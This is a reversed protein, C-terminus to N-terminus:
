VTSCKQSVLKETHKLFSLWVALVESNVYLTLIQDFQNLFDKLTDLNQFQVM